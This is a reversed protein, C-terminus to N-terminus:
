APLLPPSAIDPAHFPLYRHPVGRSRLNANAAAIEAETACTTYLATGTERHMLQYRAFAPMDM